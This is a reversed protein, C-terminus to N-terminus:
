LLSIVAAKPFSLVPACSVSGVAGRLLDSGTALPQTFARPLYSAVELNRANGKGIRDCVRHKNVRPIVLFGNQSGPSEKARVGLVNNNNAHKELPERDLLMM